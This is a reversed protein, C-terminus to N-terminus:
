KKNVSVIWHWGFRNVLPIEAIVEDMGVIIKELWPLIVIRQKLRMIRYLMELGYHLYGSLFWMPKIQLNNWQNNKFYKKWDRYRFGEMEADAQSVEANEMHAFKLLYKRFKKILSFYFWNPEIGVLLMGGSKLVRQFEQLAASPDAFHHFTAVIYLADFTQDAFPLKLGDAAFYQYNKDVFQSHTRKLTEPSIDSLVLRLNNKLHYADFGSGAGIELILSNDSQTNLKNWLYRHYFINRVANLQHVDQANEDFEDHYHAESASLDDMQAPLALFVEHDDVYQRGCASCVYALQGTIMGGGCDVCKLLKQDLM